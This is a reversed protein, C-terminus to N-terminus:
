TSLNRKKEWYSRYDQPALSGIWEAFDIKQDTTDKSPQHYKFISWDLGGRYLGGLGMNKAFNKNCQALFLIDTAGSM